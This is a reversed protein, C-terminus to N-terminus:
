FLPSRSDILCQTNKPKTRTHGRALRALENTTRRERHSRIENPKVDLHAHKTWGAPQLRKALLRNFVDFAEKDGWERHLHFTLYFLSEKLVDDVPEESVRLFVQSV